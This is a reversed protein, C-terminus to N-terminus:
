DNDARDMEQRVDDPTLFDGWTAELRAAIAQWEPTAHTNEDLTGHQVSYVLDAAISVGIMADPFRAVMDDVAKRMDDPTM